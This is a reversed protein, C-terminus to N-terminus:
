HPKHFRTGSELRQLDIYRSLTHILTEVRAPKYLYHDVGLTLMRQEQERDRCGTLVIVPLNCTETRRKLCEVVYDGAGNPMRIDTVIVNPKETAALWIGQTGFFATLVQVDYSQLRMGIATPIAPDDDICLVKSVPRPSMTNM